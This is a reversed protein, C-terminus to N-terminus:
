LSFLHTDPLLLLCTHVKFYGSNIKDSQDKWYPIWASHIIPKRPLFSLMHQPKPYPYSAGKAGQDTLM